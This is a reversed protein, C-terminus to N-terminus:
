KQEAPLSQLARLFEMLQNIATLLSQWKISKEKEFIETYDRMTWDLFPKPNMHNGLFRVEYHLHPGSSLGTNGSYAIIQGKKVFDGKKAVLKSLHAYFTKFGFSHDVKILNGYGGNYESRSFEVVGDATAFVPTGIPARIDIGTHMGHRQLVPHMRLGYPASIQIIGPIPPGNPILHMVFSKHIGTISALDVREMLSVDEGQEGRQVGVIGELDEVRDSIIILEESKQEIEAHLQENKRLIEAHEKMLSDRREQIHKVESLLLRISVGGLFLLTLLSLVAYLVVRRALQHLNYQKSGNVDTITIVLRDKM